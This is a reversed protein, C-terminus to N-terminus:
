QGADLVVQGALRPRRGTNAVQLSWGRDPGLFGNAGDNEAMGGGLPRVPKRFGPGDLQESQHDDPGAIPREDDRRRRHWLLLRLLQIAHGAAGVPGVAHYLGHQRRRQVIQRSRTSSFVQTTDFSWTANTDWDRDCINEAGDYYYSSFMPTIGEFCRDNLMEAWLGPSLTM